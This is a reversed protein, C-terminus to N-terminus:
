KMGHLTDSMRKSSRNLYQDKKRSAKWWQNTEKQCIFKKSISGSRSTAGDVDLWPSLFMKMTPSDVLRSLLTLGRFWINMSVKVYHLSLLLTGKWTSTWSQKTISGTKTMIPSLVGTMQLSLHVSSPFLRKIAMQNLFPLKKLFQQGM